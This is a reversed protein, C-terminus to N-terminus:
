GSSGQRVGFEDHEGGAFRAEAVYLAVLAHVAQLAREFDGSRLVENHRQPLYGVLLRRHEHGCKVLM